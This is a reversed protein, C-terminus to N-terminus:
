KAANLYRLLDGDTSLVLTTEPDLDATAAIVRLAIELEAPDISPNEPM